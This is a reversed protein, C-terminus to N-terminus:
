KTAGLANDINWGDPTAWAITKGDPLSLGAMKLALKRAKNDLVKGFLGNKCLEERAKPYNKILAQEFETKTTM